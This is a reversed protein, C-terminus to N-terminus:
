TKGAIPAMLVARGREALAYGSGVRDREILNRVIMHRVAAHTAVKSWDTGSGVCFLLVREATALDAAIDTPTPAKAM